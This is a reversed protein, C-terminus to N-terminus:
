APDGTVLTSGYARPVSAVPLQALETLATKRPIKAFYGAGFAICSLVYWFQGAVTSTRRRVASTLARRARYAPSCVSSPRGVESTLARIGGEGREKPPGQETTLDSCSASKDRLQRRRATIAM